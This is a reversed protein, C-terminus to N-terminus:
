KKRWMMRLEYATAGVVCFAAGIVLTDFSTNSLLFVCTLIGIAPLATGRIGLKVNMKIACANVAIFTVFIMFNALSAVSSLDGMLAFFIVAFVTALISFIPIRRKRTVRALISPLTKYDAMGYILRSTSLMVALVTNSTSFLAIFAMILFAKEGFVVSAVDAMPAKSESLAQWGIISIASVAVLIYLLTSIVISLIIAKPVTKRPNKTEDSLRALTEFGMFAFFILASAQFVGSLGKSMELYNVDGLYPIGIFIIILLGLIEFLTLVITVFASENMGLFLVLSLIVIVSLSGFIFPFGFVAEFYKSFGIAVAAASVIGNLIVFWGVLWAFRSGFLKHVYIHEAVSKPFKGALKAYSLGTVAAAFAALLFSLWLANGALGAAEGILVYIGAGVIIGVGILTLQWLGLTRRLKTKAM